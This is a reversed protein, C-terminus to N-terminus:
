AQWGRAVIESLKLGGQLKLENVRRSNVPGAGARSLLVGHEGGVLDIVEPNHSCLIVQFIDEGMVELVSLLWPQIEALGLYNDPEDLVLTPAAARTLHLLAYLFTLARQGDSLQDFRLEYRQKEHGFVAKLARTDSGVREMRLGHFEDFVDRLASEHSQALDPREQIMSRYWAAFNSGDRALVSEETRAEAAMAPPYLGCVVIRGIYDLFKAPRPNDRHSAVRALWSESWDGSLKPGASHDDRYLQVDGRNFEFLYGTPASLREVLVRSKHSDLDHEVELRYTLNGTEVTEIELEIVQTPKRTSRWATASESPFVDPDYVKPRGSLLNRLGSLVDLVTSKGVGNPGLLLVFEDMRLEFNSFCKYNDVYLRKLLDPWGGLGIASDGLM